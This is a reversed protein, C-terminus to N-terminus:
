ARWLHLSTLVRGAATVTAHLGYGYRGGWMFHLYYVPESVLRAFDVRGWRHYSYGVWTDVNTRLPQVSAVTREHVGQADGYWADTLPTTIRDVTDAPVPEHALIWVGHPPQADGMPQLWRWEGMIHAILAPVADDPM